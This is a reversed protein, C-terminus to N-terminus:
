SFDVWGGFSIIPNRHVSVKLVSVSSYCQLDTSTVPSLKLGLPFKRSNFCVNFCNTELRPPGDTKALGDFICPSCSIRWKWHYPSFTKLTEVFRSLVGMIKVNHLLYGRLHMFSESNAKWHLVSLSHTHQTQQPNESHHFCSWFLWM